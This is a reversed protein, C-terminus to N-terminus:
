LTLDDGMENIVKEVKVLMDQFSSDEMYKAIQSKLQGEECETADAALDALPCYDTLLSTFSPPFAAFNSEFKHFPATEQIFTQQETKSNSSAPLEPTYDVVPAPIMFMSGQSARYPPRNSSVFESQSSIASGFGSSLPETESEGKLIEKLASIFAETEHLTSFRLAFKQIEGASDRYSVLVARTGRAPFGSVCSVQPWSIHLKSVYHEEQLMISSILGLTEFGTTIKRLLRPERNQMKDGCYVTLVVGSRSRLVFLRLLAPSSSTLWTGLPRRNRLYPPLPVLDPCTSAAPPYGFFRSYEVEWQERIATVLKEEHGSPLVAVALSGAMEKRKKREKPSILSYWFPPPLNSFSTKYPIKEM